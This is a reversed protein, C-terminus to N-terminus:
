DCDGVEFLWVITNFHETVYELAKDYDSFRKFDIWGDQLGYDVDPILYTEELPALMNKERTILFGIEKDQCIITQRHKGRRLETTDSYTFEM